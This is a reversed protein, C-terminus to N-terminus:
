NRNQINEDIEMPESQFEKEATIKDLKVSKTEKQHVEEMSMSRLRKTIETSIPIEIYFGLEQTICNNETKTEEKNEMEIDIDLETSHYNDYTLFTKSLNLSSMRSSILESIKKTNILKSTTIATPHIQYPTSQSFTNYEQETEKYYGRIEDIIERLKEASPRKQPDAELGLNDLEAYPYANVLFEYAIIGFSYIDSKQTYPHGQLVEPAVYPLVGFIEGEEKQSNVLQCLGLDTIYFGVINGSHLDRHILEKNKNQLVQRLNGDEMYEMVMLYNGTEPDQSIGYCEIISSSTIFDGDILKTNAIETLFELTINQSNTLSKLVVDESFSYEYYKKIEKCKAKYIKSFGGQAFLKPHGQEDKEIEFEYNFIRLQPIITTLKCNPRKDTSYYIYELSRPLKDINVENLDTDSVDLVKLQKLNSLFDLPGTFQNNSIDLEELKILDKLPELSGIFKHDSLDLKELNVAG